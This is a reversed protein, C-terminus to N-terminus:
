PGVFTNGPETPLESGNLMFDVRAAYAGTRRLEERVAAIGRDIFGPMWINDDGVQPSALWAGSGDSRVAWQGDGRHNPSNELPNVAQGLRSRAVVPSKDALVVMPVSGSREGWQPKIKSFMVQYSYSVESACSWDDQSGECSCRRDASPNGPCALDSLKTYQLKPLQFLNASNSRGPTTGVDWWTPGLLSATAVPMQSRYDNAYSGMAAAVTGMNTGCLTKTSHNRWASLVPWLVSVGLVVAAAMSFFDALRGFGIRGAVPSEVPRSVNTQRIRDFTRAALDASAPRVHSPAATLLAGIAELQVARPRLSSNVRDTRFGAAVLADLAEEDDVSLTVQDPDDHSRPAAVSSGAVRSLDIARLTRAALQPSRLDANVPTDLLGMLVAVRQARVQQDAPVKSLDFGAELFADLAAADAASLRAENQDPQDPLSNM